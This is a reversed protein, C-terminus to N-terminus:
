YKSITSPKESVRVVLDEFNPQGIGDSCRLLWNEDDRDVKMAANGLWAQTVGNTDWVNWVQLSRRTRSKWEISIEVVNPATDAWLVFNNGPVRNIYAVGGQLRINIGQRLDPKAAIFRVSLHEITTPFDLLAFIPGNWDITSAHAAGFLAAFNQTPM